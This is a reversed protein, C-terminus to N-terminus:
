SAVEVIYQTQILIKRESTNTKFEPFESSHVLIETLEILRQEKKELCEAILEYNEKVSICRQTTYVTTM